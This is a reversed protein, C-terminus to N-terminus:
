GRSPTVSSCSPSSTKPLAPSTPGTRTPSSTSARRSARLCCTR